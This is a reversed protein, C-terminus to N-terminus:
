ETRSVDQEEGVEILVVRDGDLRDLQFYVRRDVFYIWWNDYDSWRYNLPTFRDQVESGSQAVAQDLKQRLAILTFSPITIPPTESIRVLTTELSRTKERMEEVIGTSGDTYEVKCEYIPRMDATHRVCKQSIYRKINM